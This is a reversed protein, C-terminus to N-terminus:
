VIEIQFPIDDETTLPEGDETEIGDDANLVITVSGFFILSQPNAQLVATREDGSEVFVANNFESSQLTRGLRSALRPLLEYVDLEGLDTFELSYPHTVKPLFLRNYIANVTIGGDQIDGATMTLSSNRLIPNALDVILSNTLLIDSFQVDAVQLALGFRRNAEDVLLSRVTADTPNSM